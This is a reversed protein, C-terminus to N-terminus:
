AHRNIILNKLTETYIYFFSQKSIPSMKNKFDSFLGNLKGDEPLNKAWDLFEDSYQKNLSSNDFEMKRAHSIPIPNGYPTKDQYVQISFGDKEVFVNIIYKKGDHCFGTEYTIEKNEM